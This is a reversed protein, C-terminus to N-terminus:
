TENIFIIIPGNQCVHKTTYYVKIYFLCLICKTHKHIIHRSQDYLTVNVYYIFGNNYAIFNITAFVHEM